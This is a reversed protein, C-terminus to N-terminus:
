RGPRHTCTQAFSLSSLSKHSLPIHSLVSNSRHFKLSKCSWPGKELGPTQYPKVGGGRRGGFDRFKLGGGGGGGSNNFGWGM